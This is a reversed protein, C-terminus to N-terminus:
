IRYHGSGTWVTRGRSNEISKPQNNHEKASRSSIMDTAMDAVAADGDVSLLGWLNVDDEGGASDGESWRKEKKKRRGPGTQPQKWTNPQQIIHNIAVLPSEM